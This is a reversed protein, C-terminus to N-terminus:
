WTGHRDGLLAAVGYPAWRHGLADGSGAWNWLCLVQWAFHLPIGDVVGGRYHLNVSSRVLYWVVCFPRPAVRRGVVGLRTVLGLGTGHIDCRGRLVFTSTAM